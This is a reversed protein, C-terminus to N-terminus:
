DLEHLARDLLALGEDSAELMGTVQDAIAELEISTALKSGFTGALQNRVLARRLESQTMRGEHLMRRLPELPADTVSGQQAAAAAGSRQQASQLRDLKARLLLVAQEVRGTSVM